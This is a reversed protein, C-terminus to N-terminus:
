EKRRKKLGLKQLKKREQWEALTEFFGTLNSAIERADERCLKQKYHPQWIRITEELFDHKM